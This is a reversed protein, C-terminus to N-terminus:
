DFNPSYKYHVSYQMNRFLKLHRFLRLIGLSPHNTDLYSWDKTFKLHTDWSELEDSNSLGLNFSADDGFKLQKKLKKEVAHKRWGELWKFNFVEFFLEYKGFRSGLDKLLTQVQGKHCYMFVGEALLLVPQDQIKNIWNKNFVSSSILRYQDSESVLNNKISIVEPLDLDFFTGPKSTLRDFRNDFGCGVNVIIGHPNRSIFDLAVDDYKKARLVIHTVLKRNVKEPVSMHGESSLWQIRSIAEQNKLIPQGSEADVAHCKLTLLATASIDNILNM